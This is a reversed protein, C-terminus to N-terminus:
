VIRLHSRDLYEATEQDIIIDLKFTELYHILAVLTEPAGPNTMRGMIGIRKFAAAM